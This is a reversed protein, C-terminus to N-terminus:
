LIDFPDIDFTLIVGSHVETKRIDLVSQIIGSKEGKLLIQWRIMGHLKVRSAPSPGLIEFNNRMKIQLLKNHIDLVAEKVKQENKGRVIINCLTSFPPYGMQRRFEVEKDYFSNFDHKKAFDLAYHEQHTSQIIVEGGLHSRGSRGAVQTLLQFTREASRFDPFYLSTDADVVGVLTVRPFDFGKAVMQTGLLIDFNENRFDNYAKEYVGKKKTSDRDLRVVRGQPFIKKLELEVKQTGVGFVHIDPSKCSPCAKPFDKSYGCYHCKLKQDDFHYVLSISCHPCQFVANCNNCTVGPAFGRRNLFIIAQERKLLTKNLADVLPESLIKSQKYQKKSDVVRVPPLIGFGVREKLELLTFEGTKARYYSEISPTASGLIVVANSLRARELAVERAHYAPKQEQKYTPEHEEDIVILGLREFPAFLASRPGIMIQIQGKKAKEWTAYKEQKSLNSHWIGVKDHFRDKIIRIFHPTLSIEPLLFVASRSLRLTEEIASLYVETKGSSTIGHLLFTAPKGSNLSRTIERIAESQAATHKHPVQPKDDDAAVLNEFPAKKKGAGLAPSVIASFAEGLSCLYNSSIWKGLAIMEETLIVDSDLVAFIDKVKGTYSEDVLSCVYGILKKNGFPISVRIGPRVSNKLNDPISYHFAKDLPLPLVVEAFM